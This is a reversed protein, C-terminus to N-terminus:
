IVKIRFLQDIDIRAGIEVINYYCWLKIRVVIEVAAINLLEAAYRLLEDFAATSGVDAENLRRGLIPCGTKKPQGTDPSARKATM